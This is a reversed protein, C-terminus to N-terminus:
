TRMAKVCANYLKRAMRGISAQSVVQDNEPHKSEEVRLDEEELIEKVKKYLQTKLARPTTGPFTKGPGNCVYKYFNDCARTTSDHAAQDGGSTGADVGTVGHFACSLLVVTVLICNLFHM